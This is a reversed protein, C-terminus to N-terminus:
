FPVVHPEALESLLSRSVMGDFVFRRTEEALQRLHWRLRHMRDIFNKENAAAFALTPFMLLPSNQM